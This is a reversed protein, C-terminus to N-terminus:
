DGIGPGPTSRFYQSWINFDGLGIRGNGNLDIDEPAPPAYQRFYKSWENFDALKVLGDNDFDPDCINGYHQDGAISTNDDEGSNTDRQDTNAVERCNDCVDGILDGDMDDQTPNPTDICNDDCDTTNGGTCPADGAIGSGDGDDPIGDGDFDAPYVSVVVVHSAGWNGASDQGRVYITYTSGQAWLSTDISLGAEEQPSDFFGDSPQMTIGFGAGPDTDVYYEASQINSSGSILDDLTATLDISFTGEPISAPSSGDVMANSAVPGVTDGYVLYLDSILQNGSSNLILDIAGTEGLFNNIVIIRLNENVSWPTIYNGSEFWLWGDLFSDLGYGCGVSFKDLIQDPRDPIYAYIELNTEEPPTGDSNFVKGYTLHPTGSDAFTPLFVGALIILGSMILLFLFNSSKM